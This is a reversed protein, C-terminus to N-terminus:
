GLMGEVLAVQEPLCISKLDYREIISRRAAARMAKYRQPHALADIIAASWGEVDFFDVLRGNEGDAIVEEVPATRSGIILAGCSMAELMSWSLVFPYTLYPHVASVQMLQVFTAYPIKGVFHVRSLDLRDSVERFYVERWTPGLAPDPAGGYSIEDGGVIVVRAKPRAELVRPLARMFVHYGRYPELNRNVFTIVEDGPRLSITGSKLQIVTDSSPACIKTDIGEHVIKIKARMEAPFVQAQWRTATQARDATSMALALVAQRARVRIRANLTFPYVEEDFGVDAGEAQYFFEAHVLLKAHPWVDKLFLTEGWGLHGCIVDPTYGGAKMQAALQAVAQGRGTHEAFQQALPTLGAPPKPVAGYRDTAVIEPKGNGPDTIARVQHGRALLAPVVNLYQAPFNQHVFLIQM